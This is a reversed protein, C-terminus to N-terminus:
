EGGDGEDEAESYCKAMYVEAAEVDVTNKVAKDAMWHKTIGQVFDPRVVKCRRPVAGEIRLYVGEVYGDRFESATDLLPLLEDRSAFAQKTVVPVVPIGTGRLATHLERRSAFTNTERDFLDFAVFYGPLRHYELSHRLACWEGFLVHREPTLLAHLAPGHAEAWRSLGSFQTHTADNVYHARNQFLVTHNPAISVGLNAGDVKEEVLVEVGSGYFHSLEEASVLLDDATVAQGGSDFLHATRPFKHLPPIIGLRGRCERLATRIKTLETPGKLPPQVAGGAEGTAGVASGRAAAADLAVSDAAAAGSPLHPAPVDVARSTVADLARELYVLADKDRHLRTLAVGCLWLAAPDEPAIDLAAEAHAVVEAYERAKGNAKCAFILARLRLPPRAPTPVADTAALLQAALRPLQEAPVQGLVREAATLVGAVGAPTLTKPKAVTEVGKSKGRVDGGSFGVTIHFDAWELGRSVRWAVADPCCVVAFAAHCSGETQLGLGLAVWPAQPDMGMGVAPVASAGGTVPGGHPAAATAADDDDNAATAAAAPTHHLKTLETRHALTIHHDPGDRARRADAWGARSAEDLEARCEAAVENIAASKLFLSGREIAVTPDPGAATAM